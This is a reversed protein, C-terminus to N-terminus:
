QEDDKMGLIRRRIIDRIFKRDRVVHAVGDLIMYGFGGVFLVVLNIDKGAMAALSDAQSFAILASIAAIMSRLALPRDNHHIVALLVGAVLASWFELTRDLKDLM